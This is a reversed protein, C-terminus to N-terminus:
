GLAAAIYLWAVILFLIALAIGALSQEPQPQVPTQIVLTSWRGRGLLGALMGVSFVGLLLM